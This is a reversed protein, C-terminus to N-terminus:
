LLSLSQYERDIGIDREGEGRRDLKEKEWEIKKDRRL